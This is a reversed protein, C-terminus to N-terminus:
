GGGVQRRPWWWVVLAIAFGVGSALALWGLTGPRGTLWEWLATTILWLQAIVIMALLFVQGQVIAMRGPIGLERPGPLPGRPGQPPRHVAPDDPNALRHGEARPRPATGSARDNGQSGEAERSGDEDGPQGTHVADTEEKESM